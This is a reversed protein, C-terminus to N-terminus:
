SATVIKGKHSGSKVKCRFVTVKDKFEFGEGISSSKKNSSVIEIVTARVSDDGSGSFIELKKMSEQSGIVIISTSITIVIIWMLISKIRKNNSM